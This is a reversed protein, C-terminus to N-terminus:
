EYRRFYKKRCWGIRHVKLSSDFYCIKIWKKNRMVLLVKQNRPLSDIVTSRSKPAQRVCVQCRSIYITDLATYLENSYPLNEIKEVIASNISNIKEIIRQETEKSLRQSYIFLLISFLISLYFELSLRSLFFQTTEGQIECTVQELAQEVDCDRINEAQAIRVIVDRFADRLNL